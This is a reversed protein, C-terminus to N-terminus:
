AGFLERINNVINNASSVLLEKKADPQQQNPVKSKQQQAQVAGKKEESVEPLTHYGAMLVCAFAFEKEQNNRDDILVFTVNVIAPLKVKSRLDKPDDGIRWDSFTVVQTDGNEEQLAEFICKCSVINHALPYREISSKEKVYPALELQTSEQRYLIFRPNDKPTAPDKELAYVVRVVSPKHQGSTSSVYVRMPNNTIFTLLQMNGQANKSMFPDKILRKKPAEEEKPVTKLKEDHVKKDDKKPAEPLKESKKSEKKQSVAQVPIFAGALDKQMQQQVLIATDYLDVYNRTFYFIKNIQGYALFLSGLLLSAIASAVLIEILTFGSKNKLM